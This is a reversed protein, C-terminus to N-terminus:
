PVVAYAGDLRFKQSFANPAKKEKGKCDHKRSDFFFTKRCWSFIFFSVQKAQLFQGPLSNEQLGFAVLM